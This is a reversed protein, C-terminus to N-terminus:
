FLSNLKSTKLFANFFCVPQISLKKIKKLRGM